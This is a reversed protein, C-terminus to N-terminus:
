PNAHTTEHIDYFLENNLFAWCIGVVMYKKNNNLFNYHKIENSLFKWSEKEGRVGRM